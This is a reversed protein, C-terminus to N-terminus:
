EQVWSFKAAYMRRAEIYAYPASEWFSSVDGDRGYIDLLHEHFDEYKGTSTDIEVATGHVIVVLKEGRM